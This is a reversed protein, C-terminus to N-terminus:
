GPADVLDKRANSPPLENDLIPTRDAPNAGFFLQGQHLFVPQKFAYVYVGSARFIRTVGDGGMDPSETTIEAGQLVKNNDDSESDPFAPKENRRTVEWKVLQYGYPAYIGIIACSISNDGEDNSVPLQVKGPKLVYRTRSKYTDYPATSHDTTFKNQTGGVPM